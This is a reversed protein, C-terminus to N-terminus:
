SLRLFSPEPPSGDEVRVSSSVNGRGDARDLDEGLLTTPISTTPEGQTRRPGVNRFETIGSQGVSWWLNATGDAPVKAPCRGKLTPAPGPLAPVRGYTEGTRSSGNTTETALQGPGTLGGDTVSIWGNQVM